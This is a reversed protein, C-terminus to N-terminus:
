DEAWGGRRKWTAPPRTPPADPVRVVVEEDEDDEAKPESAGPSASDQFEEPYKRKAEQLASYTDIILVEQGKGMEIRETPKGDLVFLALQIHQFAPSGGKRVAKMIAAEWDAPHQSVLKEYMAKISARFTPPVRNKAGKPRGGQGKKYPRGRASM